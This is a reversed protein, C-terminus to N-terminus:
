VWGQWSRLYTINAVWKTNPETATLDRLILDDAVRVGPVRLTSKGRRKKILGSIGAERMLREVRKRGVRIGHAMRLEAHIRPTGYVGRNDLHIQRIKELIWADSLERQSLSRREWDYFGSRSVELLECSVKVPTLAKEAAVLRFRESM